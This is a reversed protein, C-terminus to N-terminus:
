SFLIENIVRNDLRLWGPKKSDVLPLKVRKKKRRSPQRELSARVSRLVLSKVSCGRTAAESKLKRYLPDPIDVTTRM